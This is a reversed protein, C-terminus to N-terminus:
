RPPYPPYGPMPRQASAPYPSNHAAFPQGKEDFSPQYSSFHQPEPIAMSPGGGAPPYPPRQGQPPQPQFGGTYGGHPYHQPQSNPPPPRGQPNYASTLLSPPQNQPAPPYAGPPQQSPPYPPRNYGEPSHSPPPLPGGGPQHNPYPQPPGAQQKPYPQQPGAQQKPYPQPRGTHQNPYTQPVVNFGGPPSPRQNAPRNPPYLPASNSPAPPGNLPPPVHPRAMQNIQQLQEPTPPPRYPAPGVGPVNQQPLPPGPRQQQHVPPGHPRQQPPMRVPQAAPRPPASASYFTLELYIQGAPRGKYQLDFWDDQEGNKLVETLDIEGESILDEKRKDEDFLQVMMKTKGEPIVLNVQRNHITNIERGIRVPYACNSKGTVFRTM